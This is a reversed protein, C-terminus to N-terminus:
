PTTVGAPVDRLIGASAFVMWALWIVFGPLAFGMGAMSGRVAPVVPMAGIVLLGAGIPGVIRFWRPVLGAAATALSLGFLAVGIATFNLTFFAMHVSWLGEVVHPAGALAQTGTLAAEIAVTATFCAVIGAVGLLGTRALWGSPTDIARGYIAGVFILLAAMEIVFLAFVFEILGRHSDLNSLITAGSADAAPDIAAHVINQFVVGAVFVIGAVGALREGRWRLRATPTADSLISATM